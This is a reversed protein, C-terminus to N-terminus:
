LLWTAPQTMVYVNLATLVLAVVASLATLGRSNVFAGMKVEDSTLWV